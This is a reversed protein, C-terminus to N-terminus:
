LLYRNMWKWFFIIENIGQSIDKLLEYVFDNRSVRHNRLPMLFKIAKVLHSCIYVLHSYKLLVYFSKNNGWKPLLTQQQLMVKILLQGGGIQLINKVKHLSKTCMILQFSASEFSGDEANITLNDGIELASALEDGIGCSVM